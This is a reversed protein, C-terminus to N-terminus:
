GKDNLTDASGGQAEFASELAFCLAGAQDNTLSLAEVSAAEGSRDEICILIGGTKCPQVVLARTTNLKITTKM